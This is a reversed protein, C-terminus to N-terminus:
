KALVADLPQVLGTFQVLDPGAVLPPGALNEGYEALSLGGINVIGPTGLEVPDGVVGTLRKGPRGALVAPPRLRRRRGRLEGIQQEQSAPRCLGLSAVFLGAFKSRRIALSDAM